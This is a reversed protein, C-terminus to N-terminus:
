KIKTLKKYKILYNFLNNLILKKLKILVIKWKRLKKKNM